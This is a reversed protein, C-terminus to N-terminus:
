IKGLEELEWWDLYVREARINYEFMFIFHAVLLSRAQPFLSLMFAQLRSAGMQRLSAFAKQEVDKTIIRLNVKRFIGSFLSNLRLNGCHFRSWICSCFYNGLGFFSDRSGGHPFRFFRNLYSPSISHAALAALPLSLLFGFFSGILAMRM